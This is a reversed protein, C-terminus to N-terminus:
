RLLGGSAPKERLQYPLYNEWEWPIDVGTFAQLLEAYISEANDSNALFLYAAHQRPFCLVYNQWGDDHGEKFFVPGYKTNFVGWGLGYGLAIPRYKDTTDSNLSPFQVREHIAIQLSTMEMFTRASVNERNLVAATFRTFDAITTELSGAASTKTRRKKQM